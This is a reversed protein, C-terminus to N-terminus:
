AADRRNVKAAKDLREQTTRSTRSEDQLYLQTVALSKHGLWVRITELDFGARLWRTAATKRLRHLYHKECVPHSKCTVDTATKEYRGTNLTTKCRGCNLGAKKAIAKFKRLFHGDPNGDSNPFIWRENGAAKKRKELLECLETSLPAMREEHNKPVFNADDKGNGTVHYTQNDCDIDDWTAHMVEQERCGTTLFFLYRLDEEGDMNAWLTDIDENLYAKPRSSVPKAVKVLKSAYEVGTELVHKKLLSFVIGMRVQITKKGYGEAELGQLVKDLATATALQKVTFGNPFINLSELATRYQQVTKPRDNRHLKLYQEVASEVTTTSDTSEVITLGQAAADQIADYKEALKKATAIDTAPKGHADKLTHWTPKGDVLVNIKFPGTEHGNRVGHKVVNRYAQWEGNVKDRTYIARL